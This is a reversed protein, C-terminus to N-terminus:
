GTAYRRCDDLIPIGSRGFRRRLTVGRSNETTGASTITEKGYTLGKEILSLM